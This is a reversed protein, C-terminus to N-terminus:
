TFNRKRINQQKDTLKFEFRGKRSKSFYQSDSYEETYLVYERYLDGFNFLNYDIVIIENALLNDETILGHIFNPILETQLTYTNIVTDQIQNLRLDSGFYRDTTYTQAKNGFRGLIRMSQAWDMGTYDFESAEINGNQVTDLRITGNALEETYPYLRFVQSEFTSATGIISQDAKVQYKGAGHLSLVLDWDLLYGKYLPQLANFGFDFFTGLTADDMTDVEIDDKFLKIEITDAAILARFLFASQDNEHDLGGSVKALVKQEYECEHDCFCFDATILTTGQDGLVVADIKTALYNLPTPSGNPLQQTIAM